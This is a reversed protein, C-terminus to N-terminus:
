SLSSSNNDWSFLCAFNFCFCNYVFTSIQCKFYIKCLLEYLLLTSSAVAFFSLSPPSLFFHIIHSHYLLIEYYFFSSFIYFCLLAAVFRFNYFHLTGITAALFHKLKFSKFFFYNELITSEIQLLLKV